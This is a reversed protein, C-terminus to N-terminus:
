FISETSTIRWIDVIPQNFELKAYEMHPTAVIVIDSYEILENISVFYSKQLIPDSCLVKKSVKLLEDRLRFSLSSRFDDVGAKFTMGLIGVTLNNLDFSKKIQDTIYLPLGENIKLSAQGLSYGKHAFYDLQLTDKVLCPGAALGPYPLDSARPYDKKLSHWVNEWNIGSNVCLMFFENAVAFKLYRYSNAFLKSIEAEKFTTRIFSPTVGQFVQESLTFAEESQAGIIQPLTKIERIAIGEAIREPCFSVLTQLGKSSLLKSINESIGPYVTSRLMLLSTGILKEALNEVVGLLSNAGPSGDDNVPTGIILICVESGIIHETNETAFLKRSEIQNLLQQADEEYFPMVRENIKKVREKDTDIIVIEHDKLALSIALPLGVRGAGGVISIKM